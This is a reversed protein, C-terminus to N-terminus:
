RTGPRQSPVYLSEIGHVIDNIQSRLVTRMDFYVKDNKIYGFIPPTHLRLMKAIKEPKIANSQITIAYSPLRELPLAGSGAEAESKEVAIKIRRKPINKLQSLVDQARKQVMEPSETLMKTTPLAKFGKIGNIYSLMTGELAALILKDCRVTRAIPNEKIKDLYKKKGVIIGAQPGGM